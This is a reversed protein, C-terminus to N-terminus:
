HGFAIPQRCWPSSGAAPVLVRPRLRGRWRRGACGRVGRGALNEDIRDCAIPMESIQMRRGTKVQTSTAEGTTSPISDYKRRPTSRNGLTSKGTQVTVVVSGPALASSISVETVLGISSTILVTEPMSVIRETLESPIDITVTCNRSELFPSTPVWSTRSLTLEISDWRGSPVSFGITSRKSVSAMGIMVIAMEPRRSKRSIVSIARLCILSCNSVTLPTPRAVIMPPRVRAM